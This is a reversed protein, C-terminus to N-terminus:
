SEDSKRSRRIWIWAGVAAGALLVAATVSIVRVPSGSPAAPDAGASGTGHEDSASGSSAGGSSASPADADSSAEASETSSSTDAVSTLTESSASPASATGSSPAASRVSDTGSSASVSVTPHVSSEPARSAASSASGSSAPAASSSPHAVAANLAQAASQVASQSANLTAMTQVAADYAAAVNTRTLLGSSRAACIARTLNDKNAVPFYGGTPQQTVDPIETGMAGFGGIDAGYGLTFQVRVVDGDSLYTDAFGVNPFVNNVCYMWGSGNSIVFEGLHGQWGSAYDDPDFFTMTRQLHPVLLQPIAVTLNLARPSQAAGSKRYGNYNAATATGDAIYALYFSAQPSGGYYGVLGNTHLLRILQEASTEGEIIPVRMPPIVYGGGVTFAEVSWIATGIQTGADAKQYRIRYTLEQTQGGDSSASVTVINEGTQTFVLTYSSKENDDWTPELAKGNFQVTARIKNGAGDRAWVDFTKKSGRQTANDTLTTRLMPGSEASATPASILLTLLLVCVGLVSMWKKAIKM